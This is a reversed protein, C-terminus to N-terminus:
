EAPKPAILSQQRLTGWPVRYDAALQRAMAEAGYRNLHSPDAFYGYQTLWQNLYDILGFGTSRSQQNLYQQFQQEIPGRTADLYDYTLPLNVFVLPI